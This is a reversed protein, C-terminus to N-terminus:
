ISINYKLINDGDILIEGENPQYLCLNFIFYTIKQRIIYIM